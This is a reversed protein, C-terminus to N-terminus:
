SIAPEMHGEPSLEVTPMGIEFIAFIVREYDDPAAGEKEIAIWRRKSIGTKRAAAIQGLGERYRYMLLEGRLGLHSLKPLVGPGLVRALRCYLRATPESEGAEWRTVTVRDVGVERALESRSM